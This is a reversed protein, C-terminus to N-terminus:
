GESQKSGSHDPHSASSWAGNGIAARSCGGRRCNGRWFRRGAKGGTGIGTGPRLISRRDTAFKHGGHGSGLGFFRAEFGAMKERNVPLRIFEDREILLPHIQSAYKRQDFAAGAGQHSAVALQEQKDRTIHPFQSFVKEATIGNPVYADKCEKTILDSETWNAGRRPIRSMSEVGAVAYRAGWGSRIRTAAIAAAELSSACLRNVTVGPVQMGAGLAVMRALNYGQEGEPYACGVILDEVSNSWLRSHKKASAKLLNVLMDDPRLEAYAGKFARGFPTRMGATFIAKPM